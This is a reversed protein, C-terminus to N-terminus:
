YVLDSQLDAGNGQSSPENYDKTLKLTNYFKKFDYPSMLKQSTEEEEFFSALYPFIQNIFEERSNPFSRLVYFLEDMNYKDDLATKAKKKDKKEGM